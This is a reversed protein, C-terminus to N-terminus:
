CPVLRVKIRATGAPSLDSITASYMECLNGPLLRKTGPIYLGKREQVVYWHTQRRPPQILSEALATSPLSQSILQAASVDMANRGCTQAATNWYMNVYLHLARATVLMVVFFFPACAAKRPLGRIQEQLIRLVHM